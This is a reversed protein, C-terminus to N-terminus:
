DRPLLDPLSDPAAKSGKVAPKFLKAEPGTGGDDSKDGKDKPKDGKDKPKDGKDKPKDGKDKPKDDTDAPKPAPPPPEVKPKPLPEKPPYIGMAELQSKVARRTDEPTGLWVLTRYSTVPYPPGFYCPYPSNPAYYTVDPEFCSHFSSHFWSNCHCRCSHDARAPPACVFVATGLLAWLWQKCRM